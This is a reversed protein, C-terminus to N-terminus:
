EVSHAIVMTSKRANGERFTTQRHLYSSVQFNCMYECIPILDTCVRVDKGPTVGRRSSISIVLGTTQLTHNMTAHLLM